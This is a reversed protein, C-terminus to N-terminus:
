GEEKPQAATFPALAEDLEIGRDGKHGTDNLTEKRYARATKVLRTVKEAHCLITLDSETGTTAGVTLPIEGSADDGADLILTIKAGYLIDHFDDAQPALNPYLKTGAAPLPYIGPAWSLYKCGAQDQCVEAVAEGDVTPAPERWDRIRGSGDDYGAPKSQAAFTGLVEDLERAAVGVLQGKAEDRQDKPSELYDRQCQRLKTAAAFLQQVQDETAKCQDRFCCANLPSHITQDLASRPEEVWHVAGLYDLLGRKNTAPHMFAVGNVVYGRAELDARKQQAVSNLDVSKSSM